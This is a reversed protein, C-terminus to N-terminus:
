AFRSSAQNTTPNTRRAKDREQLLKKRSEAFSAMLPNCKRIVDWQDWRKVDAGQLCTVFTSDGSGDAILEPWWGDMAPALTGIFLARMHCGPKGQATLVADYMQEGGIVAWSGPEDLIM